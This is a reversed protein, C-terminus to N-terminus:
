DVRKVRYFRVANTEAVHPWAIVGDEAATVTPALDIWPGGLLDDTWQVRYVGGDLVNWSLVGPPDELNRILLLNLGFASPDRGNALEWGDTAGNDNSDANCPDSGARFEGINLVLDGDTDALGDGPDTNDLGCDRFRWEWTDEMGDGDADIVTDFRQIRNNYTDAVYVETSEPVPMLGYPFSLEGAGDGFGGFVLLSEFVAGNRKFVQVRHNSRDAVFIRGDVGIRVDTPGNFVGAGTTGHTGFKWLYGGAGNFAQIRHNGTDAVWAIGTDADVSLGAPLKFKGSASGYEGISAVFAGAADFIQIRHNDTDAVWIRGGPDLAVGEPGRLKGDATGSEGFTFAPTVAGGAPDFTFVRIRDNGTDAVAFRYVGARPDRGMGYPQSFAGAPGYTSVPTEAARDWVQVRNNRTDLVFVFADTLFVRTPWYCQGAGTGFGGFASVPIGQPTLPGVPDRADLGFLVCWGDPVSDGNADPAQGPENPYRLVRNVLWSGFDHAEWATNELEYLGSDGYAVASEYSAGDWARVYTRQLVTTVTLDHMFVQEFLGEDPDAAYGAGFRGYTVGSPYAALLLDDGTARGDARPPDIAGDPGAWILQLLSSDASGDGQLPRGLWNTVGTSSEARLTPRVVDLAVHVARNEEGPYNGQVIVAAEHSGMELAGSANLTLVVPAAEGSLTTDMPSVDLWPVDAQLEAIVLNRLVDQWIGRARWEAGGRNGTWVYVAGVANSSTVARRTLKVAGDETVFYAATDLNTDAGSVDYAQGAVALRDGPDLAVYSADPLANSLAVAGATGARDLSAIGALDALLRNDPRSVPNPGTLILKGGRALHRDYVDAEGPLLLRGAGDPGSVDAIVLDCGFVLADDSGYYATPVAEWGEFGFLGPIPVYVVEYNGTWSVTELGMRELLGALGELQAGDSILGVRRKPMEVCAYAFLDEAGNAVTFERTAPQKWQVAATIRNTSFTVDPQEVTFDATGDGAALDVAVPGQKAHAAPVARVKLTGATPLGDIRYAGDAGTQVAGGAAGWYEVRAGPVGAGGTDRVWGTVSHAAEVALAFELNWPGHAGDTVTLTFPVRNTVPDPLQVTCAALAAKEEGSLLTEWATAGATVAAVPSALAGAPDPLFAAGANRLRINLDVTEGPEACADGDGGSVTVGAYVPRPAPEVFLSVPLNTALGGNQIVIEAEYPGAPLCAGDNFTVTATVSGGPPINTSSPEVTLWFADFRALAGPADLHGGTAVRGVLNGDPRVGDLLAQIAMESSAGPAQSLLLALVGAAHPAAMSTGSIKAYANVVVDTAAANWTPYLSLIDVGPAALDVSTGGYNSFDALQDDDDTAAVSVINPLNYGAPYAPYGEMDSGDNGASCVMIHGQSWANSIAEYFIGSFSSGGYSNNSIRVGQAVAFGLADILASTELVPIPSGGFGIINVSAKLPMVRAGWAVGVIGTSNDGRAAITGAVHSGHYVGSALGEDYDPTPDGEAYQATIPGLPVFAGANLTWDGTGYAITGSAGGPGALTGDGLDQLALTGGAGDGATVTLSGPAVPPATLVGAFLTSTGDGAAIVEEILVGFDYGQVLMGALDEHNTQVGTDIVAVVAEAAGITSDWAETAGIDAGRTGGTQRRNRLAYLEEFRIDNPVYSPYHYYNPEVYLVEPAAQLAAAVAPLSAYRPTRVLAAPVLDFRRVESLGAAGLLARGAAADVDDRFRVLLEDPAYDGKDLAAWDTGGGPPTGTFGEPIGEKFRVAMEVYGDNPIGKSLTLPRTTEMGEDVTIGEFANPDVQLAWPAVFFVLGAVDAGAVAVTEAGPAGYPAPPLVSVTYDGDTLGYLAYDGAADSVASAALAGDRHARVVAGAVPNPTGFERVQGSIAYRVATTVSFDFTWAQGWFDTVSLTFPLVTGAPTGAVDFSPDTSSAQVSGAEPYAAINPWAADGSIMSGPGTESLIGEVGNAYWSGTNRLVLNFEITEGTEAYPDGDGGYIEVAKLDLVPAPQVILRVPVTADEGSVDNGDVHIAADYPGGPWSLAAGCADVRCTATAGPAVAGSPPSLALWGAPGDAYDVRATYLFPLNGGSNDILLNQSVCDDSREFVTFLLSTPNLTGFAQGLGFNRTATGPPVTVYPSPSYQGPKLARVAYTVGPVLGHLSYTGDAATVAAVPDQGDAQGQIWADAIPAGCFRNSVLGTLSDRATIEISVVDEWPGAGAAAATHFFDAVTGLPVDPAVDARLQTGSSADEAAALDGYAVVVTEAPLDVGEVPSTVEAQVQTYVRAGDYHAATLELYFSEGPEAYGDADNLPNLGELDRVAWTVIRVGDPVLESVRFNDVVWGAYSVTDDTNLRFRVRISRNSYCLLDISVHRWGDSDGTVATANGFVGANSVVNYWGSGDNIEVFGLDADKEIEYWTDFTIRPRCGVALAPSQLWGNAGHTYRDSLRTAWAKDGFPADPPGYTPVGYEWCDNLGGHTWGLEGDEFDTDYVTWRYRTVVALYDAEATSGVNTPLSGENGARDRSFLAARYATRPVLGTVTVSHPYRGSGDPTSVLGSAGSRPVGALGTPPINTVLAASGDAPEDTTWVLVAGNDWVEVVEAGALEPPVCDVAATDRRLVNVGGAGDDADIYTVEILGGNTVQLLGDAAAPAGGRLAIANTLVGSGPLTEHLVLAQEDRLVTGGADTYSAVVVSVTGTVKLDRDKLQVFAVNYANSRCSYVERDFLIEGAPPMVGGKYNIYSARYGVRACGYEIWMYGGEGWGPGWSNRLIWCGETGLTDDWGVLVVAHNVNRSSDNDFVGGTYAGFHTADVGVFVPGYDLLAQKIADTDAVGDDAGVYAWGDLVYLRPYPGACPVDAAEYPFDTELAAGVEGDAAPTDYFYPHAEWGGSCGFYMEACSVLLQESLDEEQGDTIRINSELCGVTAFAWCSGCSAQNRIPTLGGSEERWDFQEPLAPARLGRQVPARPAAEFFEPPAPIYGCLEELSYELAPTYGVTYSYGERAVDARIAEIRELIEASPEAGADAWVFAPLCIGVLLVTLVAVRSM